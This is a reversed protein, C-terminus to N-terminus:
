QTRAEADRLLVVEENTNGRALYIKKGDPSFNFQYIMELNFNTIQRAQRSAFDFQWLDARNGYNYYYISKGDPAFQARWSGAEEPLVLETHGPKAGDLAILQYTIKPLPTQENAKPSSGYLLRAGDPSLEIRRLDITKDDVVRTLRGTELDIKQVTANAYDGEWERFFLSRHDATAGIFDHNVGSPYTLQTLNSGDAEVRWVALSEGAPANSTFYVYKGYVRMLSVQGKTSVLLKEASGDTKMEWLDRKGNADTKVFVIRDGSVPAVGYFGLLATSSPIIQKAARTELDFEWIGATPTKKVVALMRSDATTSLFEYKSTDKTLPIVAGDPFAVAYIQPDDSAKFKNAILLGSGDALWHYFFVPVGYLLANWTSDGIPSLEGGNAPIWGLRAVKGFVETKDGYGVLIKGADPSFKPSFFYKDRSALAVSENKGDADAVIIQALEKNETKKVFVMKKGDPSFSTYADDTAPTTTVEGGLLAVRKLSYNGFGESAQYFYFYNGDPSFGNLEIQADKVALIEKESGTELQRLMLRGNKGYEGIIYALYKGDPSLALSFIQGTIPLKELTTNKFATAILRPKKLYNYGCYSLGALLLLGLTALLPAKLAARRRPAFPLLVTDAVELSRLSDSEIAVQRLDLLMEEMTPYREEPAKALARDIVASLGPPAAKNKEGVPAHPENIIAAMTEANSNKRFPLGGTAMEYLVVGFSFIDSRHDVREGRAQEPSMYAPTGRIAGTQTLKVDDESDSALLKALGFDLVKAQRRPNILINASKIDRHIIGQAHAACLADAIQLGISLLSNSELARGGIAERLTRGEVYQMSIFIQGESEGIEHIACINTHDLSAALRAERLFRARSAADAVLHPALIKLAVKRGLKADEALYVEGMGGKGLERLVTYRGLSQGATLSRGSVIVDTYDRVAPQELFDTDLNNFLEEVQQRLANNDGCTARLFAARENPAVELAAQFVERMKQYDDSNM